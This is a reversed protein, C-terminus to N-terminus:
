AALRALEQLAEQGRMTLSGFSDRITTAAIIRRRAESYLIASGCLAEVDERSACVIRALSFPLTVLRDTTM